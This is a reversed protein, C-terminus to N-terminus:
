LAWVHALLLRSSPRSRRAAAPSAMWRAGPLCRTPWSGSRTRSSRSPTSPAPPDFPPTQPLPLLYPDDQRWRPGCRARCTRTTAFRVTWKLDLSSSFPGAGKATIALADAAADEDDLDAALAAAAETARALAASADAAHPRAPLFGVSRPSRRLNGATATGAAGAAASAIKARHVDTLNRAFAEVVRSYMGIDGEFYQELSLHLGPKLGATISTVETGRKLGTIKSHIVNGLGYWDSGTNAKVVRVHVSDLSLRSDAGLTPSLRLM